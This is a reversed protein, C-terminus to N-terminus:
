CHGSPSSPTRAEAFVDLTSGSGAWYAYAASNPSVNDLCSIRTVANLNCGSGAKITGGSGQAKACWESRPPTGAWTGSNVENYGRYGTGAWCTQASGYSGCGWQDVDGRAPYALALSSALIAGLVALVRAPSPSRHSPM